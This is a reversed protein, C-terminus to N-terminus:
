FYCFFLLELVEDMLEHIVPEHKAWYLLSKSLSYFSYFCLYVLTIKCGPCYDLAPVM